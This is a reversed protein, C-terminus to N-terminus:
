SMIENLDIDAVEIIVKHMRKMYILLITGGVDTVLLSISNKNMSLNEGVCTECYEEGKSICYKPSRLKINKGILSNAETIDNIKVVNNGVIHYRGIMHKSNVSTIGYDNYGKTKCDKGNIVIASTARLLIKAILGGKFTEQGRSYSAFRVTNFLEAVKVPDKSYGDMLPNDILVADKNSDKFSKDAGTILMVKKRSNNLIKGGMLKGLSPDDKLYELDYQKLKTEIENIVSYDKLAEEGHEKIADAIVKKRYEVIGDPPLISKKTSSVSIVDAWNQLYSSADAFDILEKISIAGPKLDKDSKLKKTIYTNEIDGVTFKHNQYPIKNGFVYSLLVYNILLRGVTTVMDEHANAIINKEISIEDSISFLAQKSVVGDLKETSNNIVVHIDTGVTKVYENDNDTIALMAIVWSIKLPLKNSLAYKLYEIKTM